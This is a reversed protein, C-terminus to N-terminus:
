STHKVLRITTGSAFDFEVTDMLSRMLFIGVGGETLNDKSFQKVSNPDFGPGKDSVEIVAANVCKACKVRIEDREGNPSGHKLANVCAEGVALEIDSLDEQSFSSSQLFEIVQRRLTRVASPLSAASLYATEWVSDAQAPSVGVPQEV